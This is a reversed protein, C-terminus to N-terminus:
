KSLESRPVVIEAMMQLYSMNAGEIIEEIRSIIELAELTNGQKVRLKAVLIQAQAYWGPADKMNASNVFSELWPGSYTDSEGNRTYTYQDVENESLKSLTYNIWLPHKYREFGELAKQLYYDSNEIDGSAKAYLGEVLYQVNLHLEIGSTALSEKSWTLFEEAESLRGDTILAWAYCAYVYAKRRTFSDDIKALAQNGWEIAMEGNSARSRIVSLLNYTVDSESETPERVSISEKQYKIAQDLEGRIWSIHGLQNLSVAVGELYGLSVSTEKAQNCVRLSEEQNEYKELNALLLLINVIEVQDDYKIAFDLGKKLERRLDIPNGEDKLNWYSRQFVPMLFELDGQLHHELREWTRRFIDDGSCFDAVLASYLIFLDVILWDESVEEMANKFARQMDKWEIHEGLGKKVPLAVATELVSPAHREIYGIVYRLEHAHCSWRLFLYRVSQSTEKTCVYEFLRSLFEGYNSAENMIRTLLERSDQDIFPFWNTITGLPKM